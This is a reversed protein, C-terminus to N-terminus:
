DCAGGGERLAYGHESVESEISDGLRAVEGADLGRDTFWRKSWAEFGERDEGFVERALPLSIRAAQRLTLAEGIWLKWLAEGFGEPDAATRCATMPLLREAIEYATPDHNDAYFAETELAAEEPTRDACFSHGCRGSSM